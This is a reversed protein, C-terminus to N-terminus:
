LQLSKGQINYPNEPSLPSVNTDYNFPLTGANSVTDLAMAIPTNFQLTAGHTNEKFSATLGNYSSTGASTIWSV